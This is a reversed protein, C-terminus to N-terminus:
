RQEQLQERRPISVGRQPVTFTGSDVPVGSLPYVVRPTESEIRLASLCM